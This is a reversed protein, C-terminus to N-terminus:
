LLNTNSAQYVFYKVDESADEGIVGIGNRANSSVTDDFRNANTRIRLVSNGNADSKTDGDIIGNGNLNFGANAIERSMINLARQADALADLNSNTQTRTNLAQAILKTAMAMVTLTLTMAILLEILSFGAHNNTRNRLM